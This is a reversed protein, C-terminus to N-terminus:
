KSASLLRFAGLNGGSGQAGIQASEHHVEGGQIVAQLDGAPRHGADLRDRDAKIGLGPRPVLRRPDVAEGMEVLMHHELAGAPARRALEALRDLIHAAVEVGAGVAVLGVEGGGQEGLMQRQSDLQDGVHDQAGMERGVVQRALLLHHQLLQGLRAVGRAVDDEVIEPCHGPRVLREAARDEAVLGADARDFQRIQMAPPRLEVAGAPQDQDRGALNLM